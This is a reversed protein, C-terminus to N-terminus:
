RPPLLVETIATRRPRSGRGWRDDAVGAGAPRRGGGLDPRSAPDLAAGVWGRAGLYAPVFYRQADGSMLAEQEGPPAKVCLGLRGDGHHDVLLWGFRKRRVSYSTHGHARVVETAPLAVVLEALRHELQERDADTWGTGMREGYSPRRVARSPM